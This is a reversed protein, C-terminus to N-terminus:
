NPVFPKGFPQTPPPTIVQFVRLLGGSSVPILIIKTGLEEELRRRFPEPAYTIAIKPIYLYHKKELKLPVKNWGLCEVQKLSHNLSLWYRSFTFYFHWDVFIRTYPKIMGSRHLALAIQSFDKNGSYFQQLLNQRLHGHLRSREEEWAALRTWIFFNGIIFFIIIFFLRPIKLAAQDFWILCSFILPPLFPLFIRPFAPKILSVIAPITICLALLVPLHRQVRNAYVDANLPIDEGPFYRKRAQIALAYTGLLILGCTAFVALLWHGILATRSAWGSTNMMVFHLRDIIPIYFIMGCLAIGFLMLTFLINFLFRKERYYFIAVFIVLTLNLLLNSPIICPLPIAGLAFLSVGLTREDRVIYLVGATAITALLISLSYGRVQYFFGIYIPNFTLLLVCFFGASPHRFIKRGSVFFVIITLIAFFLSPLRFFLETQGRLAMNWLYLFLTYLLHNNALKYSYYIDLISNVRKSLILDITLCEDMWLDSLLNVLGILVFCAGAFIALIRMTSISETFPQEKKPSPIREVVQTGLIKDALKIFTEFGM